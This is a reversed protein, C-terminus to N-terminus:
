FVQNQPVTLSLFDKVLVVTLSVMSQFVPGILKM